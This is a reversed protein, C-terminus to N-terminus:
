LCKGKYIYQHTYINIYICINTPIQKYIYIQLLYINTCRHTHTSKFMYKQTYVYACMYLNHRSYMYTSIHGVFAFTKPNQRHTKESLVLVIIVM